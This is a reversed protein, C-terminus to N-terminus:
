CFLLVVGLRVRKKLWGEVEKVVEVKLVRFRSVPGGEFALCQVKWELRKM